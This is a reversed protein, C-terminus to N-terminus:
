MKTFKTVKKGCSKCEGKMMARKNGNKMTIVVKHANVMTCSKREHVCWAPMESGSSSSHMSKMSHKSKHSGHSSGHKKSKKHGKGSARKTPM